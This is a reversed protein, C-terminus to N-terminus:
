ASSSGPGHETPPGDPRAEVRLPARTAACTKSVDPSALLVPVPWGPAPLGDLDRLSVATYASSDRPSRPLSEARLGAPSQLFVPSLPIASRSTSRLSRSLHHLRRSDFELSANERVCHSRAVEPGLRNFELRKGGLKTGRYDETTKQVRDWYHLPYSSPKM